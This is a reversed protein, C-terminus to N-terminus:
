KGEKKLSSTEKDLLNIYEMLEKKTEILESQSELNEGKLEDILKKDELIEDDKNALIEKLDELEKILNEESIKFEDIQKKYELSLNNWIIEKEKIEKLEKVIDDYKELPEKSLNGLNKLEKNSKHLEDAINLAALTAAMTQSLRKNKSYLSKIKDDVYYALNRIQTEDGTGVVTFTRGDIIVDVKKKETM